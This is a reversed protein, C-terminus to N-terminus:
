HCQPKDFTEKGRSCIKLLNQWGMFRFHLRKHKGHPDGGRNPPKKTGHKGSCAAQCLPTNKRLKRLGKLHGPLVKASSKCEIACEMDNIIFDVEISCARAFGNGNCFSEPFNLFGGM